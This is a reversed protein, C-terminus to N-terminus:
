AGFTDAAADAQIPPAVGVNQPYVRWRSHFYHEIAAVDRQVEQKAAEIEEDTPKTGFPM